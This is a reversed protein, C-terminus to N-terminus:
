GHVSDRGVKNTGTAWHHSSVCSRTQGRSQLDRRLCCKRVVTSSATDSPSGSTASSFYRTRSRTLTGSERELRSGHEYTAYRYQNMGEQLTVEDDKCSYGVLFQFFALRSRHGTLLRWEEHRASKVFQPMAELTDSSGELVLPWIGVPKGVTELKWCAFNM